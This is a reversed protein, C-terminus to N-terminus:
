LSAVATRVASVVQAGDWWHGSDLWVSYWQALDQCGPPGRASHGNLGVLYWSLQGAAPVSHLGLLLVFAEEFRRIGPFITRWWTPSASLFLYYM